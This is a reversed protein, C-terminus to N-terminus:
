EIIKQAQLVREAQLLMKINRKNKLFENYNHLFDITFGNGLIVFVSKM